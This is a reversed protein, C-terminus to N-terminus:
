WLADIGQSMCREPGETQEKHWDPGIGLTYAVFSDKGSVRQAHAARESPGYKTEGERHSGATMGDSPLCQM